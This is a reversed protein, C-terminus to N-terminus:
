KNLFASYADEVSNVFHVMENSEFMGRNIRKKSVCVIPITTFDETIPATDEPIEDYDLGTKASVWGLLQTARNTIVGDVGLNELATWNSPYDPTWVYIILGANHLQKVIQPVQKLTLFSPNYALVGLERSVAVADAEADCLYGTPINPAIKKSYLINEKGFSQVLVHETMNTKKILQHVAVMEEYTHNGKIELLLNGGRNSLDQLQEELTPLRTGTFIPDFWSGADLKKLEAATYNRINGHGNTTRNLESDHLVFPVHDKSPQTDDEIWMVGTKRAVVQSVITNEPCGSPMGRHGIITFPKDRLTRLMLNHPTKLNRVSQIMKTKDKIDDSVLVGSFRMKSFEEPNSTRVVSTPISNQSKASRSFYDCTPSSSADSTVCLYVNGFVVNTLTQSNVRLTHREPSSTQPPLRAIWNGQSDADARAFLLDDLYISVTSEPTATGYLVTSRPAGQLVMGDTFEPALDAVCVLCVILFPFFSLM